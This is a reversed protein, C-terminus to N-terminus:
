DTLAARHRSEVPPPPPQTGATKTGYEPNTSTGTLVTPANAQVREMVGGRVAM